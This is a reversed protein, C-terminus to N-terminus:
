KVDKSTIDFSLTAIYAQGCWKTNGAMLGCKNKSLTTEHYRLDLTALADDDIRKLCLEYAFNPGASLTGRWRHVAQLWRLPRSLFLLPSMVVLPFGVYMPALWAGILGMDHYLPLWSVFVDDPGAKVWAGMARINALLHAHTLMVGKPQGTSGSTYQIFAVDSGHLAPLELPADALALAQPTTISALSPVRAKLLRAV